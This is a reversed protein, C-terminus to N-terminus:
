SKGRFIWGNRTTGENLIAALERSMVSAEAAGNLDLMNWGCSPPLSLPPFSEWLMNTKLELHLLSSNHQSHALKPPSASAYDMGGKLSPRARFNLCTIWTKLQSIYVSSGNNM